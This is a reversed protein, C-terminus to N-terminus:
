REVIFTIDYTTNDTFKKREPPERGGDDHGDAGISYITYGHALLRYRLPAGDFPDMPVADLFQPTLERLATPLRVRERRFAEVALATTALRIRAQTSAESVIARSLPALMMMSLIDWKHQAVNNASELYNTLTLSSPPPLAALSISKDMTQLYFDLDREELGTLSLVFAPQGLYRHPEESKSPSVDNQSESQMEKWSMRFIPITQAREGVLALPLANTAGTRTFAAQLRRCGEASPSVRNLSRETAGASMRIISNRVLHSVVDPEDDLTAALKLQLDVQEPWDEARGEEADLGAALAAIVAIEKLKRLHPMESDPGYSFDVPFRFRSLLLADRAKALALANTQVYAEVLGRTASSWDNTRTLIKDAVVENSRADPFTRLLAFAQTLVLAGNESDPVPRRWANLEAGSVPFGAARIRAFQSNVDRYLLVRWVAFSCVAFCFVLLISVQFVRAFRRARPSPAAHKRPPIIEKTLWRLLKDNM